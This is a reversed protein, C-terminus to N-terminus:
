NAKMAKKLEKTLKATAATEVSKFIINAGTDRLRTLLKQAYTEGEKEQERTLEKLKKEMNLRQVLRTIEDDSLNRVNVKKKGVGRVKKSTAADLPYPPGHKVGWKQGEIGHHMIYDSFTDIDSHSLAAKKIADPWLSLPLSAIKKIKDIISDGEFSPIRHESWKESEKKKEESVLDADAKQSAAKVTDRYDAYVFMYRVNGDADRFEFNGDSGMAGTMYFGDEANKKVEEIFKDPVGNLTMYDIIEKLRKENAEKFDKEVIKDVDTKKKSITTAEPESREREKRVGWKMGKVGYHMLVDNVKEEATM